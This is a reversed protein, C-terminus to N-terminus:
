PLPPADPRVTRYWVKWREVARGQEDKDFNDPPGFGEFNRSISRLGDRAERVVRKDPDTLAFILTPAHDVNRLKGLARVALLRAGASGSKVVQELRRAQEPGVDSVQLAAPDDLLADLEDSKSDDLLGLLQDVETPNHEVVMKGGRLKVKSLDRPLGRGGVLTGQGLSAQISKQTSRLLFLISFSTAATEGTADYWNGEPKQTEKLLEFGKNYWDPEDIREGSLFEEFSKYREISYLYYSPFDNITLTFNKAYWARGAELTDMLQNRNINGAPLAPARIKLKEKPAEEKRLAPPLEEASALEIEASPPNLLGLCNGLLMSTCMGAATMSVGPNSTQTVPKGNPGPDVGQYGWVGSPDRTRMIWGLCKQVAVPDPSIGHNMLEWYALAAYQTQSTDGTVDKLYGFGGHPKQHEQLLDIYTNILERHAGSNLEALFIIALAKGYNYDRAREAEIGERCANLAELVRPHSDPAGRKHYALGILCKGGVEDHSRQDLFAIGKDIVAIVEPSEPTVAAAPGAGLSLATAMATAASLTFLIRSPSKM